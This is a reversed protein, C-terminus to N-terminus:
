GTKAPKGPEEAPRAFESDSIPVNNKVTTLQILIETDPIRQRMKFATKVGDVLRFDAAYTVAPQKGQPSELVQDSRILLLSQADHYQLIPSSGNKPVLRLKYCVVSGARTLGLLEVTKFYSRWNQPANTQLAQLQLQALEAGKLLRLEKNPDRTWGEKGDYGIATEGTPTLIRMLFKDPVKVKIEIRGIVGSPNSITGQSLSSRIRAYAPGGTNKLFGDLVQEATRKPPTATKPKQM